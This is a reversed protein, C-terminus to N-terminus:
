LHNTDKKCLLQPVNLWCRYGVFYFPTLSETWSLGLKHKNWRYFPRTCDVGYVKPGEQWGLRSQCWCRPIVRVLLMDQFIEHHRWWISVNEANSARQAPFEGTGTFEGCLPWHCLAKINVKIQAQIFSQTFLRSPPSKLRWQPWWSTLTICKSFMILLDPFITCMIILTTDDVFQRNNSTCNWKDYHRWWISANEANSARQAPFEDTVPSNGACLGTVRLKSTKLSRRRFSRNLICDHPQHNSVCDRDNHPWLLSWQHISFMLTTGHSFKSSGRRQNRWKTNPIEWSWRKNEGYDHENM